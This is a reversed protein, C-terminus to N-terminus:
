GNARRAPDAEYQSLKGRLTAYALNIRKLREESRKDGNNADP